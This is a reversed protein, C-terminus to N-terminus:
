FDLAENEDNNCLPMLYGLGLFELASERGLLVDFSTKILIQWMKLGAESQFYM